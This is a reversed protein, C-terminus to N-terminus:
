DAGAMACYKRVLARLKRQRLDAASLTKIQRVTQLPRGRPTAFGQTRRGVGARAALAAAWGPPRRAAVLAGCPAARGRRLGAGRWTPAQAAGPQRLARM